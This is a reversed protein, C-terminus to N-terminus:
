RVGEKDDDWPPGRGRACGGGEECEEGLGAKKEVIGPVVSPRCLKFARGSEVSFESPFRLVVFNVDLKITSASNGTEASAARRATM